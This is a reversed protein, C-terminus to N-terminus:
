SNIFTKFIVIFKNGEIMDWTLIKIIVQWNIAVRVMLTVVQSGNGVLKCKLARSVVAGVKAEERWKQLSDTSPSCGLKRSSTLILM